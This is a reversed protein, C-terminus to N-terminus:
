LRACLEALSERLWRHAADNELSRHTVLFIPIPPFEVPTTLVKL